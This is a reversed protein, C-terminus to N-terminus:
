ILISIDLWTLIMSSLHKWEIDETYYFFIEEKEIQLDWPFEIQFIINLQWHFLRSYYAIKRLPNRFVPKDSKWSIKPVPQYDVVNWWNKQESSMVKSRSIDYNKETESPREKEEHVFWPIYNSYFHHYLVSIPCVQTM